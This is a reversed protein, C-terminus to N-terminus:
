TQSVKAGQLRRQAAAEFESRSALVGLILEFKLIYSPPTTSIYAAICTAKTLRHRKSKLLLPTLGL